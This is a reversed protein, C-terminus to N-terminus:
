LSVEKYKKLLKHFSVHLASLLEQHTSPQKNAVSCWKTFTKDLSAVIGVVSPVQKNKEHYVDIGVIM